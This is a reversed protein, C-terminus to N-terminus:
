VSPKSEEQLIQRKQTAGALKSARAEFQQYLSKPLLWLLYAAVLARLTRGPEEQLIRWDTSLSRNLLKVAM